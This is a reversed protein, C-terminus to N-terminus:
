DLGDPDAMGPGTAGWVVVAAPAWVQVWRLVSSEVQESKLRGFVDGFTDHSARLTGNPLRLGLQRLWGLKANGWGEVDVWDEVSCIVACIADTM